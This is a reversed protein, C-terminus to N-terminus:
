FLYDNYFIARFDLTQMGNRVVLEGLAVEVM